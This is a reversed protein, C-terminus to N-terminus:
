PEGLPEWLVEDQALTRALVFLYDAWRNLFVGGDTDALEGADAAARWWARYARRVVTRAVLATAGTRGG